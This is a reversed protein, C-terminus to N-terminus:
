SSARRLHAQLEDRLREAWADIDTVTEALKRDGAGVVEIQERLRDKARRLRSRINSEPVGFVQSLEPATMREWYYLELLFQYKLPISRLAELLVRNDERALLIASPGAGLERVSSNVVSPEERERGKRRYYDYVTNKTISLVYASLKAGARVQDRREHLAVVVKQVIDDVVHGPVKTIVNRRIVAYYKTLLVGAAKQDGARWAELLEVDPDMGAVSGHVGLHAPPWPPRSGTAM